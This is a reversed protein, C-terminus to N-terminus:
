YVAVALVDAVAVFGSVGTQPGPDATSREPWTPGHVDDSLDGSRQVNQVLGAQGMAVHAWFLDQEPSPAGRSKPNLPAPGVLGRAPGGATLLGFGEALGLGDGGPLGAGDLLRGMPCGAVM